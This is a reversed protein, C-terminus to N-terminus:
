ASVDRARGLITTSGGLGLCIACVISSKGTGLPVGSTKIVGVGVWGRKSNSSHRVM